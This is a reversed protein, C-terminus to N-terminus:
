LWRTRAPRWDWWFSLASRVCLYLLKEQVSSSLVLSVEVCCFVLLTVVSACFLKWSLEQGIEVGSRVGHHEPVVVLLECM